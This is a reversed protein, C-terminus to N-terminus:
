ETSVTRQAKQIARAVTAFVYVQDQGRQADVVRRAVANLVVLRDKGNKVGSNPTRGGFSAPILFVSTNLEPIPVEWDWRLNCVEKERTGTNVKFAGDNGSPLAAGETVLTTRGM